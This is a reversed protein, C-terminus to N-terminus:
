AQEHVGQMVICAIIILWPFCWSRTIGVEAPMRTDWLPCSQIVDLLDKKSSFRLSAQKSCNSHMDSWWVMRRQVMHGAVTPHLPRVIQCPCCTQDRQQVTRTEVNLLNIVIHPWAPLRLALNCSIHIWNALCCFACQHTLQQLLLRSTSPTCGFYTHLSSANHQSAMCERGAKCLPKLM